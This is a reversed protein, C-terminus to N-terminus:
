IKNKIDCFESLLNVNNEFATGIVAIDAGSKYVSQLKKATNIGGGIILPININSKVASIIEKSIIHKAGSGSDMYIIKHGLLEGAIATSVAIDTKNAPIPKTNSIYEVSTTVGNEVLIYGTPITEINSQKIKKAALVHNGILFEANRGSILSLFLIADAFKSIQNLSGPFLVLPKKTNQKITNITENINNNVLSGGVFILDVTTKNIQKVFNILKNLTQKDPDILVALQKKNNTIKKLIDSLIM